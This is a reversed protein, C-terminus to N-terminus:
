VHEWARLWSVRPWVTRSARDLEEQEGADLRGLAAAEVVSELQEGSAMGGIVSHIANQGLVHRVALAALRRDDGSGDFLAGGAFPKITIAGTDNAQLAELLSCEPAPLSAATFPFLVVQIEAPHEAVMRRLWARDHSSVGTFRTKGQERARALGDIVAEEIRLRESPDEVGDVPLSIRWLDIHDLGAERLGQDLGVILQTASRWQPYRPERTHWSYGLLFRDRRGALLRSYTLIEQPSCADIYNIGLEAARSVVADRNALFDAARMNEFDEEDYGTGTFPRGLVPALGKWHGGLGIASIRAGTKGLRRYEM